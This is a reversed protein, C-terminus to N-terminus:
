LEIFFQQNVNERRQMLTKGHRIFLILFLPWECGFYFLLNPQEVTDGSKDDDRKKGNDQSVKKFRETIDEIKERIDGYRQDDYYDNNQSNDPKIHPHHNRV